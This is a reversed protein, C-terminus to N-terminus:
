VKRGGSAICAGLNPKGVYIKTKWYDTHNITLCRGDMTKKILIAPKKAAGHVPMALLGAMLLVTTWIKLYGMADERAHAQPAEITRTEVHLMQSGTTDPSFEVPGARCKSEVGTSGTASNAYDFRTM